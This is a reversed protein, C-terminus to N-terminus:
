FTIIVNHSSQTMQKFHFESFILMSMVSTLRGLGHGIPAQSRSMEM